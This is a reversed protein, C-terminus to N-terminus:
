RPILVSAKGTSAVVRPLLGPQTYSDASHGSAEDVGGMRDLRDFLASDSSIFEFRNPIMGLRRIRPIMAFPGGHNSDADSRSPFSQTRHHVLRLWAYNHRCVSVPLVSVPAM